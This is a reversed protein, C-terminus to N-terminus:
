HILNCEAYFELFVNKGTIFSDFNTENLETINPVIESPNGEGDGGQEESGEESNIEDANETDGAGEEDTGDMWPWLKAETEYMLFISLILFLLFLSKM